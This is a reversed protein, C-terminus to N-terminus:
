AKYKPKGMRGRNNISMMIGALRRKVEIDNKVNKNAHFVRINTQQARTVSPAEKCYGINDYWPWTDKSLRAIM